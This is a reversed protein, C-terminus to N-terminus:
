CRVVREPGLLLKFINEVKKKGNENLDRLLRNDLKDTDLIDCKYFEPRKETIQEIRDLVMEKSNSLNDIITVQHDEQLLEVVTHSGIYGTGGTVLLKM